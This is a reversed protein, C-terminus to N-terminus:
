SRLLNILDNLRTFTDVKKLIRSHTKSDKARGNDQNELSTEITSIHRPNSKRHPTGWPDQEIGPRSALKAEQRLNADMQLPQFPIKWKIRLEDKSKSHYAQTILATRWRWQSEGRKQVPKGLCCIAPRDMSFRDLLLRAIIIDIKLPKMSEVKQQKRM